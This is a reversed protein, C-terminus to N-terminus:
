ERVAEKRSLSLVDRLDENSIKTLWSEGTGIVNEAVYRKHEIM